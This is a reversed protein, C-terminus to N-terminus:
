PFKIGRFMSSIRWPVCTLNRGGNLLQSVFGKTKGLREALEKRSIKGGEKELLECLTETVEIILEEQAILRAFEPDELYKEMLDKKPGRKM